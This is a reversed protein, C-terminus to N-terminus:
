PGGPGPHVALLQELTKGVRLLHADRGHKGVLMLGVPGDGPRNCPISLACGDLYNALIPNRILALHLRGRPTADLIQRAQDIRPALVPVTPMAVADYRQTQEAFATCLEARLSMGHIYDAASFARGSEIRRLITPDYRDASSSIRDRHVAFAEPVAIWGPYRRQISAYFDLAPLSRREVAVGLRRLRRLAARFAADVEADLGDLVLNTPVLLSIAAARLARPPAAKTGSLVADTLACCTVSRALPGVSDMSPALPFCGATPVRYATPKFGVIGNLAAPIRISGGTDSGIGVVAMEDTVSIAAGSSSGGAIRGAGRDWVNRPDGYVRNFGEAGFAFESMNTRGVVIAGAARLRAVAVADSRAAAAGALVASGARTVTGAEDFLDKISVPIGTLPSRVIGRRRLRDSRDAAARASAAHVAIFTAAGEGRPDAIRELLQEVLRRSTVRGRELDRSIELVTM